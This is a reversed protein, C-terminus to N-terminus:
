KPRFLHIISTWVHTGNPKEEIVARLGNALPYAVRYRGVDGDPYLFGPENGLGELALVGDRVHSLRVKAVLDAMRSLIGPPAIDMMRYKGSVRQTFSEWESQLGAPIGAPAGPVAEPDLGLLTERLREAVRQVFSPDAGNTMVVIGVGDDPLIDLRTAVGALGGTHGVLTRGRYRSVWFGLGLGEDLDPHNSVQRTTAQQLLSESVIREGALEGGRLVIQGFRALELSSTLLAGAPGSWNKISGVPKRGAGMMRLANGYPTAIGPGSPDLPFASNRMSLPEFVRRQVLEAFPEGNLREAVYGLLSFGGNAYVIRKGPKRTTRMGEIVQIHSHLAIRGRNLLLKMPWPGQELGKWSVPLGSTHTLLHRFTVDDAAAGNKDSVRTRADLYGNVSDDLAIRGAAVEQLVLTTTFLKSISAARFLTEPTVREGRQLDAYGFGGAFRVGDRDFAAVSVGVVDARRRESEIFAELDTPVSSAARTAPAVAM